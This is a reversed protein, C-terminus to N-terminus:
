RSPYQDEQCVTEEGESLSDIGWFSYLFGHCVQDVRSTTLSQLFQQAALVDATSSARAPKPPIAFVPENPLFAAGKTFFSTLPPCAAGVWSVEAVQPSLFGEPWYILHVDSWAHDLDLINAVVKLGLHFGLIHRPCGGVPASM